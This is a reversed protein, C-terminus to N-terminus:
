RRPEPTSMARNSAHERGGVRRQTVALAVIVVVVIAPCLWLAGGGAIAIGITVILAGFLVWLPLFGM